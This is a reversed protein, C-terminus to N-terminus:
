VLSRDESILPPPKLRLVGELYVHRPRSPLVLHFSCGCMNQQWYRLGVVHVLSANKKQQAHAANYAPVATM